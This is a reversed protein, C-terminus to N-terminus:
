VDQHAEKILEELLARGDGKINGACLLRVNRERASGAWLLADAVPEANLGTMRRLYRACGERDEGIVYAHEPPRACRRLVQAFAELRYARDRRHNYMLSYAGGAACAELAAAFSQADNAAFANVALLGGVRVEKYMGIDPKANAIGRMVTEEPIGLKEALAMVLRVNQAHVPFPLSDFAANAAEEQPVILHETYAGFRKDEAIVAAGDPISQALVRVTEEETGGIEEVHDVYANTMLVYQPCVLKDALLRQNEARQAMCEVVVAQAGGRVALRVFPLQELMSVMGHRRYECEAGDPLIRRAESGTTKAYTTIGAENLVSAAMRTVTTKGRTGNVLIRLPLKALARKHLHNEVAGALLIAVLAIAIIHM